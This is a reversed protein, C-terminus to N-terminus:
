HRFSIFVSIAQWGRGWRQRQQLAHLQRRLEHPRDGPPAGRVQGWLWRGLDKIGILTSLVPHRAKWDYIRRVMAQGRGIGEYLRLLYELTMRRAPIRHAIRMSPIYWCEYNMQKVRINIATDGGSILCNATRDSIADVFGPESFIAKLIDTRICLGAGDPGGHIAPYRFPKDGNDRCALAFESVALALPTPDSEWLPVVKGGLSGAHPLEAFARVAQELWDPEAPNDDDLFCIIEGRANQAACGRSYSLGQRKEYVIRLPVPLRECWQECVKVTNDTSANDVVLIEWQDATLTQDALSALVYGIRAGGNYTCIAVTAALSDSPFHTNGVSANLNSMQNSM